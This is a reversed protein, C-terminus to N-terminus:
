AVELARFQAKLADVRIDSTGEPNRVDPQRLTRWHTVTSAQAVEVALTLRNPEQTHTDTVVPRGMLAAAAEAYEPRIALAPETAEHEALCKPRLCYGSLDLEGEVGCFNCVGTLQRQLRRMLSSPEEPADAAANTWWAVAKLGSLIVLRNKARTISTYWFKKATDERVKGPQALIVTAWDSGQAKHVTIVYGLQLYKDIEDEPIDVDRGTIEVRLHPMTEGEVDEWRGTVPNKRQTLKPKHVIGIARGTQGNFIELVSSNKIVLVKDGQCIHAEVLPRNRADKGLKWCAYRALPFGDPNIVQQALLNLREVDENMWTIVQWQEFDQSGHRRILDTFTPQFNAPDVGFLLDVCSEIEAPQPRHRHLVGEAMKLIGQQDRQRYNQSLHVHALGHTLMDRMPQGHGIPPLQQPDGVFVLHAGTGLRQIVAWALWNPLMSSEDVIIFKEGLVDLTFGGKKFLLAKHITSAEAMIGYRDFAERMRDAAKGAFAMGRAQHGAIAACMVAAAIVHTKGVGAGGTLLLVPNALIARVARTQHEDLGLRDCVAQQAPTLDVLLVAGGLRPLSRMWRELGREAALEEPLWYLGDEIDVGSGLHTPDRLELRAREAALDRETLVGRMELISRNGAEHRRPDESTLAFETLAIRDAKKFGIGEVETLTYPNREISVLAVHADGEGLDEVVRKALKSGIGPLERIATQPDSRFWLSGPQQKLM